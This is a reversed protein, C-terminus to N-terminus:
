PNLLEEQLNDEDISFKREGYSIDAALLGSGLGVRLTLFDNQGYGREWLNRTGEQIRRVCETVPIINERIIGEQKECEENFRVSIRVLYEGYKKQRLAEKKKKRKKEYRKSIIPWLVTGLLMSASMVISPLAATINDNAIANNIAFFGTAMSAMGMTMSPGLVMIFPMEEGEANQPPPDIKFVAKEIDRKFRPSRYFYDVPSKGGDEVEDNDPSKVEQNPFPRLRNTVLVVSGDPNNIAFFCSGIILRFGMLFVVDGVNLKKEKIRIDNVFTGNTSNEDYIYWQLNHLALKAHNGSIFENNIVIDNKEDRGIHIDMDRDVLYKTYIQRDDTNPEAFVYINGYNSQIRQNSIGSRDLVRSKIRNGDKDVINFLGNSKLVWEGNLAEIGLSKSGNKREPDPLWFQGSVKGPLTISQTNKGTILSVIM